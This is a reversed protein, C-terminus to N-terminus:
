LKQYFNKNVYQKIYSNLGQGLEALQQMQRVHIVGPRIRNYLYKDGNDFEVLLEDTDIQFRSISSDGGQNKYTQMPLITEVL